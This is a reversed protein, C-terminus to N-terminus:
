DIAKCVLRYFFVPEPYGITRTIKILSGVEFNYYQCIPDSKYLKPLKADCTSYQLKINEAEENSLKEHKPVIAHLTINVCLNKFTFFQISNNPSNDAEKKTFATPGDLSVIIIDADSHEESWLRMQKVGVREENHFFILSTRTQDTGVLIHENEQMKYVVDSITRCENSVELNRDQLMQVCTKIVRELIVGHNASATNNLQGIKLLLTDM